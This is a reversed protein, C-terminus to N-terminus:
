SGVHVTAVAGRALGGEPAGRVRRAGSASSWSGSLGRRCRSHGASGPQAGNVSVVMVERQTPGEVPRCGELGEGAQLNEMRGVLQNREGEEDFRWGGGEENERGESGRVEKGSLFSFHDTSFRWWGHDHCPGVVVGSDPEIRPHPLHGPPPLACCGMGPKKGPSDRPSLLRTPQM